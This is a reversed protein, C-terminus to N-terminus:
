THVLLSEGKEGKNGTKTQLRGGLHQATSRPLGPTTACWEPHCKGVNIMMVLWPPQAAHVRLSPRDARDGRGPASRYPVTYMCYTAWQWCWLSWVRVCGCLWVRVCARRM